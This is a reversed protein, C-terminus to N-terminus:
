TPLVGDKTIAKTKLDGPARVSISDVKYVFVDRGSFHTSMVQIVGEIDEEECLVTDVGRLANMYNDTENLNVRNSKWQQVARRVNPFPYDIHACDDPQVATVICKM